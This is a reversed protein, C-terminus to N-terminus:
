PYVTIEIHTRNISTQATETSSQLLKLYAWCRVGMTQATSVVKKELKSVVKTVGVEEQFEM